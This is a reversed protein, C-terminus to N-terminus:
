AKRHRLEKMEGELAKILETNDPEAMKLEDMQAQLAQQALERVESTSKGMLMEKCPPLTEKTRKNLVHGSRPNWFLLPYHEMEEYGAPVDVQPKDTPPWTMVYWWRVLFREVLWDKITLAKSDNKSVAKKPASKKASSSRKRPAEDESSSEDSSDESSSPEKYKPKKKEPTQKKVVKLALPKDDESDSDDDAPRKQEGTAKPAATVGVRKALPADDDSDSQAPASTAKAAESAGNEAPEGAHM